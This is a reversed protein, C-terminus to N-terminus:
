LGRPWVGNTLKVAFFGNTFDSFWVQKRERDFAPKAMAGAGGAAPQNYYAIERPKAPDRIDFIRLGSGIYSCAAIKPNKFRPIACYHSSYGGVPSDAGPDNRQEGARNETLQVELRMASVERPREPDEVDIIRAAAASNNPDYTFAPNMSLESFEDVMLVYDRGKIRMPEAVQPIAVDAWTYTSVLKARPLPKREQIASVDYIRLGGSTFNTQNPYGMDAVYLLKGDPSTRVGHSWGGAITTLTRPVRPNSVDVATITDALLSSAYFTRGDPSLGSEHGLLGTPTSSLLTPKRCNQKVDYIDLFGPLTAANGMVAMLLGRKEHLILSEHPSLMAPTMLTATRRPKKPKNMDLVATGLGEVGADLVGTPFMRSVDYFACVNGRTDRYREVKLGGTKGVHSILKTNCSYGQQARGSAFDAAPARGATGPEPRSGPGCEAPPLAQTVPPTHSAPAEWQLGVQLTVLVMGTVLLSTAALRRVAPRTQTTM